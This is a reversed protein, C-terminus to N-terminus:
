HAHLRLRPLALSIIGGLFVWGLMVPLSAIWARSEALSGADLHAFFAWGFVAVAIAGSLQQVTSCLGSAIGAAEVPVDQLMVSTTAPGVLGLGVGMLAQAALLFSMPIPSASMAQAFALLSLAQMVAGVVVTRAGWRRIAHQGLWTISLMAGFAIPLCLLSMQLASYGLGTQLVLTLTFLYAPVIGNLVLGCLLASRFGNVRWLTSPVLPASGRRERRGFHLWSCALLIPVAILLAMCWGPWGLEPGEILPVLLAVLGLTVLAAGMVDLRSASLSRGQPLWRLAALVSFLGVPLNILFCLRWGLGDADIGILLGGVIPGLAAATGGLLGFLTFVKVREEPAYLLQMLAMVQPVMLAALAGQAARAAVLVGASPALGCALSALTFGGVGLVFCRRYGIRDGLRGGTMLLAAFALTYGAITWQVQAPTAGLGSRIAPIAVNVITVDLLDMVFALAVIALAMRKRSTTYGRTAAHASVAISGGAGPTM